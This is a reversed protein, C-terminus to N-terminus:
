EKIKDWEISNNANYNKIRTKIMNNIEYYEFMEELNTLYEYESFPVMVAEMNNNKLIYVAEGTESLERVTQTLEKQLKTIPMIRDTEVLMNNRRSTNYYM